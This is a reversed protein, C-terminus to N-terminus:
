FLTSTINNNFYVILDFTVINPLQSLKSIETLPRSIAIKLSNLRVKVLRVKGEQKFFSKQQVFLLVTRFLTM